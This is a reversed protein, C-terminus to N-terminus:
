VKTKQADEESKWQKRLASIANDQEKLEEPTWTRKARNGIFAKLMPESSVSNLFKMAELHKGAEMVIEGADNKLAPPTVDVKPKEPPLTVQHQKHSANNGDDDDESAISLMASLQYRRGYTIASGQGQATDKDSKVCMINSEIFQGSEHIIMTQIGINNEASLTNQIIALGHEAMLPRLDSLIDNLPAYKSKFFPNVASNKPNTLRKNLSILAKNIENIEISTNM